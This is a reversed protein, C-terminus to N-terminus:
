WAYGYTGDEFVVLGDDYVVFTPTYMMIKPPPAGGSGVGNGETAASPTPGALILSGFVASVAAFRALRTMMKKMQIDGELVDVL